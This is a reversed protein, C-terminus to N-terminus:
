AGPSLRAVRRVSEEVSRARYVSAMLRFVLRRQHTLRKQVRVARRTQQLLRNNLLIVAAHSGFLEALRV